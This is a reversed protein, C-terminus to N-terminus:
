AAPALANEIMRLDALKERAAPSLQANEGEARKILAAVAKALANDDFASPSVTQEEVTWFPRAFAEGPRPEAYDKHTKGIMRASFAGDKEGVRINSFAHVWAIFAKRRVGKPMADLLSPLLSCDGHDAARHMIAVGTAHIRADLKKGASRISAISRGIATSCYSNSDATKFSDLVIAPNTMDPKATKEM